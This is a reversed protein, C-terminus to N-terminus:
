RSALHTLLSGRVRRKRMRLNRKMKSDKKKQIMKQRLISRLKKRGKMRVEECLGHYKM